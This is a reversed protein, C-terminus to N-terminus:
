AHESSAVVDLVLRLSDRADQPTILSIDEGRDLCDVFYRIENYYGSISAVNGGTGQDEISPMPVVPTESRGDAHYVTLTPSLRSNFEIAGEEFLCRYAMMFPFNLPYDWGSEISVIKGDEYSYTAILHEMRGERTHSVSNFRKPDGWLWRILDADHIHLDLAPSGCKAPDYFWNNWSTDIKRRQTIRTFMGSTLSGLTGRDVFQKLVQYEPWFRIVHAAMFQVGARELAALARDADEVTLAIPKECLVHRGAEAAKIIYEAHLFTPLCIDVVDVNAERVLAEPQSYFRCGFEEAAKRGVEPRVDAIAAIRANELLEYCRAHTSGMFGAGIIGITIM